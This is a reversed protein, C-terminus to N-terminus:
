STKQKNLLALYAQKDKEDLEGTSAKQQLVSLQHENNLVCLRNMIANFEDTINNDNLLIERMALKALLHGIKSNRWYELLAATNLTPDNKLLELLKTLIDTGALQFSQYNISRDFNNSLEPYQILLSIAQQMLTPPQNDLKPKKVFTPRTNTSLPQLGLIDRLENANMQVRKALETILLQQFIKGPIQKIMPEALKVLRSRGDLTDVDTQESLNHLLFSSLPTAQELADVFGSKGQERVMSDPDEGESLFMFSISLEDELIPLINELARWAAVRGAKDGDFCFVINQAQRFLKEANQKTTATGLTAVVNTIDNQVLAIVDMYGEVVILQELNRNSQLAEYMGYLESGKHFIATEPSNLYKPNSDDLVRGGFGIVRGQRDRIPFMIRNRFRDYIKGKDNKTLLGCDLLQQEDFDKLHNSINNWGDPAYGVAFYKAIKGTLGRQKLYDKVAEAAEHHRLQHQYYDNAKTMADYLTKRQQNDEPNGQQLPVEMGVRQALAKVAEVFNFRDHEILFSIANGSAGCGFCYYFQKKQSVTFSPTKETHFPCCASYNNGKKKLPVSVDVIDVIDIRTLLEDIFTQPIRSM